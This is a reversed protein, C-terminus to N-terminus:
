CGPPTKQDRDLGEAAWGWAPAEASVQTLQYASWLSQVPLDSVQPIAARPWPYDIM